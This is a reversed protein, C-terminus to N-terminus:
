QRALRPDLYLYLSDVFLNVFTYSAVSLLVGAQVIPYDRLRIAEVMVNGIGPWAFVAETVVAGSLLNGMQLGILTVIPLMSNRLAHRRVIVSESLGKARATWIYQASLSEILAARSLKAISPMLWMSLTVVPLVLHELGGRGSTPLWGLNVAFILVLMIGLWFIPVGQGILVANSLLVDWLTGRHTASYIGIPLAILVATVFSVMGLEVTAPFREFIVESSPRSYRYSIGFDGTAVRSIWLVYQVPLPKDLGFLQRQAAVIEPPLQESALVTIPDGPVVRVLVFIVLSAAVLTLVAGVLRNVLAALPM